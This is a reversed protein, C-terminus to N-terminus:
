FRFNASVILGGLSLNHVGISNNGQFTLYRYGVAVDAWDAARYGLGAYVQWTLPVGGGGADAYFPLYLRSDPINIRGTLGGVADFFTKNVSLSGARGLAITRDPALIDVSLSYNTTSSIALMRMGAVADLNGWGGQLLTYGGALSWVTSNTRTGTGVQVDRPIDIPGPGLNVTSLHSTNSTLSANLYVIDTMVTFRDYRAEAGAMAAFNIDSIYDAIGASISTSVTGGRPGAATLSSQITPIWAYPTVAFSWAPPADLNPPTYAIQAHAPLVALLLAMALLWQGKNLRRM